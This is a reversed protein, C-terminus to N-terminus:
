TGNHRLLRSATAYEIIQVAAIAGNVFSPPNRRPLQLFDAIAIKAEEASKVLRVPPLKQQQCWRSVRMQQRDYQRKFAFAVLPVGVSVCEYFTNYGAGGVVVDAAPLCDIGPWHFVWLEPPCNEPCEASLCRVTVNTLSNALDRTLQGYFSLEEARGAACVLVVKGESYDLHLLYDLRLLARSDARNPLEGASKFLWPATPNVQPLQALPLEGIEGPILVLDFNDAVFRRLDKARVYEPNLDRHVLIRPISKMQPLIDALEGGLGRPFTDVILCDYYLSAVVQHVRDCTERFTAQSPIAQIYCNAILPPPSNSLYAVYPSNTLITVPRTQAAIRSLALSRMLHGWGGGLAYILWSM